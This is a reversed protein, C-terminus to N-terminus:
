PCVRDDPPLASGGPCPCAWWGPVVWHPCSKM